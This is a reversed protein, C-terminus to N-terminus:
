RPNAYKKVLDDVSLNGGKGEVDFDSISPLKGSWGQLTGNKEFYAAASAKNQLASQLQTMLRQVRIANEPEPQSPNYARAILREGEKETFQAGLIARLSRQVVEEVRERTAVVQPNTFNTIADPMRGIVPGTLYGRGSQLRKVVDQLQSLQKTADQAGGTKFAVYDKAFQEDAAKGAARQREQTIQEEQSQGVGPVGLGPRGQPSSPNFPTPIGSAGGAAYHSPLGSMRDPLRGTQQFQLYEPQTLQIDQGTSTKIPVMPASPNPISNLGFQTQAYGPVMGSQPGNPGYTIMQGPQTKFNQFIPPGGTKSVLAGGERINAPESDKALQELYKQYGVNPDGVALWYKMPVGGAPGGIGPVNQVGQAPMSVPQTTGQAGAMVSPRQANPSMPNSPQGGAMGMLNQRQANQLSLTVGAQMTEPLNTLAAITAPDTPSQGLKTLADVLTKNHEESLTKGRKEAMGMMAGGVGLKAMQALGAMPSIPTVIGGVAPQGQTPELGQQMLAQAFQRRREVNQLEQAYDTFQFNPASTPM